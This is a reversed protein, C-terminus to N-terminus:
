PRGGPRAGRGRGRCARIGPEPREGTVRGPKGDREAAEAREKLARLHAEVRSRWRPGGSVCSSGPGAISRSSRRPTSSGPGAPSRSWGGAGSATLAPRRSGCASGPTPGRRWARSGPSTACCASGRGHPAPRRRPRGPRRQRVSICSRSSRREHGRSRAADGLGNTALCPRLGPARRSRDRLCRGASARATSRGRDRRGDTLRRDPALGDEDRPLRRDMRPTRRAPRRALRLPGRQGHDAPSPPAQHRRRREGRGRRAPRRPGGVHRARRRGCHAALM